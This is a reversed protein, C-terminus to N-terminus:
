TLDIFSLTGAGRATVAMWTGDPAIVLARPSEGVPIEATIHRASIDVVSATGSFTNATVAYRQNGALAIARGSSPRVVNPDPLAYLPRPTPTLGGQATVPATPLSLVALALLVWGVGALLLGRQTRTM